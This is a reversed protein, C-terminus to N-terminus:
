APIVVDARLWLMRDCLRWRCVAARINEVPVQESKETHVTYIVGPSKNLVFRFKM